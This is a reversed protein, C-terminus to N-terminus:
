LLLLVQACPFNAEPTLTQRGGGRTGRRRHKLLLAALAVAGSVLGAQALETSHQEVFDGAVHHAKQAGLTLHRALQHPGSESAKIQARGQQKSAIRGLM